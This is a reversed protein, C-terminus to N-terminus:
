PFHEGENTVSDIGLFWHQDYISAPHYRTMTGPRSPDNRMFGIASSDPSGSAMM